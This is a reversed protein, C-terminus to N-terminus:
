TPVGRRRRVWGGRLVTTVRRGCMGSLAQGSVATQAADGHAAGQEVADRVQKALPDQIRNGLSSM